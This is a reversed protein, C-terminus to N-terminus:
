GCVIVATTPAAFEPEPALYCRRGSPVRGRHDSAAHTVPAHRVCCFQSIDAIASVNSSADYSGACGIDVVSCGFPASPMACTGTAEDLMNAPTVASSAAITPLGGISTPCSPSSSAPRVLKHPQERCGRSTSRSGPHRSNLNTCIRSAPNDSTPTRTSSLPPM